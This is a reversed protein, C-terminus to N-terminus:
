MLSGAGKTGLILALIRRWYPKTQVIDEFELMARYLIAFDESFFECVGDPTYLQKTIGNRPDVVIPTPDEPDQILPAYYHDDKLFVSCFVKGTSRTVRRLERRYERKITEDTFHCFVYSDVVLDFSGDEFPLGDFVSHEYFDIRDDVGAQIAARRTERLAAKSFDMARVACGKQALYVSNRGNGCGVELVDHISSFQIIEAFLLLAKSPATRTSSPIVQLTDYESDWTESSAARSDVQSKM